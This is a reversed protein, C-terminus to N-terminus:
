SYASPICKKQANTFSTQVLLASVTVSKFSNYSESAAENSSFRDQLNKVLYSM